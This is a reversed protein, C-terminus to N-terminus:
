TLPPLLKRPQMYTPTFDAPNAWDWITLLWLFMGWVALSPPLRGTPGYNLLCMRGHQYVLVPYRSSQQRVPVVLLGSATDPQGFADPTTYTVKYLDVGNQIIAGYLTQMQALSRNGKSVVSVIQQSVVPQVCSLFLFFLLYYHKM